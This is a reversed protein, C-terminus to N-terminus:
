RLIDYMSPEGSSELISNSFIQDLEREKTISSWGYLNRNDFTDLLFINLGDTSDGLSRKYVQEPIDKFLPFTVVFFDTTDFRLIYDKYVPAWGYNNMVSGRRYAHSLFDMYDRTEAYMKQIGQKFIVIDKLAITDNRIFALWIDREETRLPQPKIGDKQYEVGRLILNTRTQGRILSEVYSANLMVGAAGIAAITSLTLVAMLGVVGSRMRM